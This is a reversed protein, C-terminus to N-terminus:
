RRPDDLATLFADRGIIEFLEGSEGPFSLSLLRRIDAFVQQTTEGPQRRRSNLEARFREAQNSSGFRSRLVHIIDVETVDDALVQSANGTLSDRLFAVCEDQSRENHEACNTYKCLFTKLPVSVGDFKELKLQKRHAKERVPINEQWHRLWSKKEPTATEMFLRIEISM